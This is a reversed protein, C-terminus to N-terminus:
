IIKEMVNSSFLIKKQPANEWIYIKKFPFPVSKIMTMGSFFNKEKLHSLFIPGVLVESCFFFQAAHPGEIKPILM